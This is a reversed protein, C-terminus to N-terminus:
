AGVCEIIYDRWYSDFGVIWYMREDSNLLDKAKGFNDSSERKKGLKSLAHATAYGM